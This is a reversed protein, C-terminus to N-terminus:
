QKKEILCVDLCADLCGDTEVTEQRVVTEQAAPTESTQIVSECETSPTVTTETQIEMFEVPTSDSTPEITQSSSLESTLNITETQSGKVFDEATFLQLSPRLTQKATILDKEANKNEVESLDGFLRVVQPLQSM